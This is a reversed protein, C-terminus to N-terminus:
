ELLSPRAAILYSRTLEGSVNPSTKSTVSLTYSIPESKQSKKTKQEQDPPCRSTELIRSGDISMLIVSVKLHKRCVSNVVPSHMESHKSHKWQQDWLFLPGFRQLHNKVRSFTMLPGNCRKSSIPRM